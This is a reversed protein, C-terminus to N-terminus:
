RLVRTHKFENLDPQDVILQVVHEITRRALEADGQPRTM